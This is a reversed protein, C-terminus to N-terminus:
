QILIWHGLFVLHRGVFACLILSKLLSLPRRLLSVMPFRSSNVQHSAVLVLEEPVNGVNWFPCREVKRCTQFSHEAM